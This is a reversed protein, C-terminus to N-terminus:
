ALLSGMNEKAALPASWLNANLKTETHVGAKQNVELKSIPNPQTAVMDKYGSLRKELTNLKRMNNADKCALELKVHEVRLEKKVKEILFLTTLVLRQPHITPLLRLKWM